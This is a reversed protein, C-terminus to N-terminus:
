SLKDQTNSSLYQGREIAGSFDPITLCAHTYWWPLPRVVWSLTLLCYLDTVAKITLYLLKVARTSRRQWTWWVQRAVSGRPCVHSTRVKLLDPYGSTHKLYMDVRRLLQGGATSLPKLRGQDIEGLPVLPQNFHSPIPPM